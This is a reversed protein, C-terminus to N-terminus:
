CRSGGVWEGARLTRGRRDRRHELGVVPHTIRLHGGPPREGAVREGVARQELRRIGGGVACEAGPTQLLVCETKEQVILLPWMRLAVVSIVRTPRPPVAAALPKKM